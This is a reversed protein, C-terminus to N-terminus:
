EELRALKTRYLRRYLVLALLSSFGEALLFSLWILRPALLGLVLAAPLLLVVQRLLSLILSLMPCGLAQFSSSFIIGVAAFVFSLSVLRLAPVGDALVAADANFLGLLPGPVLLLLLTGAALLGAAIILAFHILGTIRERKKAGYNFSVVPILGNNLGYVPMFLFSQLKFYAGLIFVGTASFFSLLKNMGLTMVTALSQMVMAPFGIKLIELIVSRSPRFGRAQLVLVRSRRVLLLGVTMGVLQGIVTALAAGAVELRPFPGLGFILLPDLLLNVVAGIGQICMPGVADGSAQLVREGSFQMCVGLSGATVIALYQSGYDVVQPVDSFLALFPRSFLVGPILFILWCCLYLFYGNMAVASAEAPRREGLRRSLITNVGVGTGVCISIMLTQVPYALSLAVFGDTSLQAVFMSDVLNYLAQILMSLMMPWSMHLLLRRVPMVAMKNEEM